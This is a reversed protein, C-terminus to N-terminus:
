WRCPLKRNIRITGNEESIYGGRLLDNFIRSAMERSSGVRDAIEQRSLKEEIVPVGDKEVASECLLQAIRGYVDEMALCAIKSSAERLRRSLGRMLNMTFQPNRMRLPYIDRRRIFSIECKEKTVVNSSRHGEDILAMEGFYDGPSLVAIIAEKGNASRKTIKVKGKRIIYLADTEEDEYLVTTNRPFVRKIMQDNIMSIDEASLGHFLQESFSPAEPVRSEPDHAPARVSNAYGTRNETRSEAAIMM